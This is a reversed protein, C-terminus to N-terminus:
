MEVTIESFKLMAMRLQLELVQSSFALPDLIPCGQTDLELGHPALHSM